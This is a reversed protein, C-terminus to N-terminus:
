FWSGLRVMVAGRDETSYGYEFRVPGVPTEAGVGARVGGVWGNGDLLGGGFATRGTALELRGQLPGKLPFTLTAGAMVERDGRREGIHLGPFGDEGGLPFTAQLPLDDGWGLRLRPFVRVPGSKGVIEADLAARSYVGSVLIEALGVQGRTRSARTMRAVLGLTSLERGPERWAHGMLGAALEWGHPMAREAGIFGIAERTEAPSLEDGSDDFRRVDELAVRATFTPNFLQRGVQYNRRLGAYLEQRLEGLFLAASGELALGLFRRDVLGAWMRGGLENDYAVGLGAVRRSARRLELEFWV